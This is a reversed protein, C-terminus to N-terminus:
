AKSAIETPQDFQLCPTILYVKCDPNETLKPKLSLITMTMSSISINRHIYGRIDM